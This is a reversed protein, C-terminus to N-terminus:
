QRSLKGYLSLLLREAAAFDKDKILLSKLAAIAEQVHGSEAMAQAREYELWMAEPQVNVAAVPGGLAVAVRAAIQQTQALVDDFEATCQDAFVVQSSATDVVRLNVQVWDGVAMFGGFVMRQAGIIRGLRLRSAEDSLESSGLKQEALIDRLQFRDVVQLSPLALLSELVADPLTRQLFEVHRLSAASAASAATHDEFDWIVVTSAAKPSLAQAPADVAWVSLVGALVGALVWGLVPRM